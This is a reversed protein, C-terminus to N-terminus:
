MAERVAETGIVLMKRRSAAILLSAGRQEYLAAAMECLAQSDISVGRKLARAFGGKKAALQVCKRTPHVSVGRGGLKQQPDPVLWPSSPAIALRLLEERSATQRCGVCLRTSVEESTEGDDDARDSADDSRQEAM